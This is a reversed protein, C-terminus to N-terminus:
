QDAEEENQTEPEDMDQADEELEEPEIDDAELGATEEDEDIAEAAPDHLTLNHFIEELSYSQTFISQIAWGKEVAFSTLATRLDEDTGTQIVFKHVDLLESHELLRTHPYLFLWDALDPQEAKVELILRQSGDMHLSLNEKIEDVVIHGKNIIIVRDCMAQVEQMIHSSLLVTKESGLEKILERIEMIQNPDLGSTPEDLILVDPDHLIAQSLGVRQKYGKSLTGIKQNLVGELGCKDIVYELRQNYFSRDMRRLAAIYALFEVVGMEHYLPNHEPLYGIKAAPGLPDAFIDQGDLMISGSNPELYGVMMRMTTTKGAGNPGLFGVIEAKEVKFSINNVARINGFSRSLNKIEIM